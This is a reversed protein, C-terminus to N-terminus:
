FCRGHLRRLVGIIEPPWMCVNLAVWVAVYVHFEAGWLPAGIAWLLVAPVCFAEVRKTINM